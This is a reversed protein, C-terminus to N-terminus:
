CLIRGSTWERDRGSGYYEDTSFAGVDIPIFSVRHDDRAAVISTTWFLLLAPHPGNNEDIRVVIVRMRAM